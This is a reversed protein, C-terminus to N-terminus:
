ELTSEAELTGVPALENFNKMGIAYDQSLGYAEPHLYYGQDAETKWEEVQIPNATAFADQRVGTVQWSVTMNPTGGAIKFTNTQIEKAIYLPAFGGIPTLQYRFEHNLAEFWEPLVVWAEGNANLVANGNYINMMDPSEVFSHSLYKNAPDLPHDILFSGSGKSLKGSIAVNGTFSGALGSGTARGSVANGAGVGVGYVGAGAVGLYGYNDSSKNRGYVGYGKAATTVGLVGAKGTANAVGHVGDGTASAGSVGYGSAGEGYVGISGGYGDGRVANGGGTNRGWISPGSASNSVLFVGSSWPVKGNLTFGFDSSSGLDWTQGLHDHAGQTKWVLDSGNWSLMEGPDAGSAAISDKRVAGAALDSPGITGDAIQASTVANDAILNSSIGRTAVSMTVEGSPGGGTLGEGAVVATIDGSGGPGGNDFECEVSGDSNIVRIAEGVPCTQNVREQKADNLTTFNANVEASSITTDPKFTHPLNVAMAWIGLTLLTIAIFLYFRQLRTM